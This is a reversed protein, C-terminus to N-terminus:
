ITVLSSLKLTAWIGLGFGIFAGFLVLYLGIEKLFRFKFRKEKYVDEKIERLVPLPIVFRGSPTSYPVGNNYVKDVENFDKQNFVKFTHLKQLM